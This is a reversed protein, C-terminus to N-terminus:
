ANVFVCYCNTFYHTSDCIKELIMITWFEGGGLVCMSKHVHIILSDTFCETLVQLHLM